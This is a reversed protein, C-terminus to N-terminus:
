GRARVSSQPAARADAGTVGRAGQSGAAWSFTRGWGTMNKQRQVGAVPGRTASACPLGGGGTSSRQHQGRAGGTYRVQLPGALESDRKRQAKRAGRLGSGAALGGTAASLERLQQDCARTRLPDVDSSNAGPRVAGARRPGQPCGALAQCGGAYRRRSAAAQTVPCSGGVSPWRGRGPGSKARESRSGAAALPWGHYRRHVHLSQRQLQRRRAHAPSGRGGSSGPLNAPRQM